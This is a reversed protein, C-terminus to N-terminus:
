KTKKEIISPIYKGWFSYRDTPPPIMIESIDIDRLRSLEAISFCNVVIEPSKIVRAPNHTPKESRAITVTNNNSDKVVVDEVDITEKM